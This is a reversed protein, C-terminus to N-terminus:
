RLWRVRCAHICGHNCFAANSISEKEYMKWGKKKNQGALKEIRGFQANHIRKRRKKKMGAYYNLMKVYEFEVIVNKDHLKVIFCFLM